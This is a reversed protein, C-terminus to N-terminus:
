AFEMLLYMDKVDNDYHDFLEFIKVINVHAVREWVAIEEM